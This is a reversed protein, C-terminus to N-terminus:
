STDEEKDRDFDGKFVMQGRFRPREEKGPKENDERDSM